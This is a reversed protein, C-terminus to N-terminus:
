IASQLTQKQATTLNLNKQLEAIENKLRQIEANASDIQAQAAAEAATNADAATSTAEDAFAPTALLLFMVTVITSLWM